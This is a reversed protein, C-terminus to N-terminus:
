DHPREQIQESLSHVDKRQLPWGPHRAQMEAFANDAQEATPFTWTQFWTDITGDESVHVEAVDGRNVVLYLLTM